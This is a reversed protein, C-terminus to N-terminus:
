TPKSEEEGHFCMLHCTLLPQYHCCYPILQLYKTRLESSATATQHPEQPGHSLVRHQLTTTQGVVLLGKCVTCQSSNRLCTPSFPNRHDCLHDSILASRQIEAGARHQLEWHTSTEHSQVPSCPQSGHQSKM